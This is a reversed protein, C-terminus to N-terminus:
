RYIISLTASNQSLKATDRAADPMPRCNAIFWISRGFPLASRLGSSPVPFVGPVPVAFAVCCDPFPRQSRHWSLGANPFM